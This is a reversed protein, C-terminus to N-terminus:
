ASVGEETANCEPCILNDLSDIHFHKGCVDCSDYYQKFCAPCISISNGNQDFASIVDDSHVYRGCHECSVYDGLGFDCIYVENGQSNVAVHLEENLFYDDCHHCFSYYQELCSSCVCIDDGIWHVNDEHFYQNCHNCMYYHNDLCNQCVYALEGDCNHVEFLEDTREDCDACIKLNHNCEKCYLGSDIEKGCKICLGFTGVTFSQFDHEHDARISIKPDFSSYNWDPYGGFGYGTLLSCFDNGSYNFTKWLNPVGELASIERQILDRYLKSDSQFGSTGGSTNYLRSQLLLGNYPKYMFLQRSTKRNNLLEPIDPDSVTFVIFTVNDRAYGSCGCNYRYDTSNFSHCSTLMNGRLDNKPNSMTLFHAPNISVFLKFNIKKSSLEDAFKAFLRQFESGASDNSVGLSDCIAKFIRSKKKRPAYAKPAIQNIADIYEPVSSGKPNSFFRIALCINQLTDYDFSHNSNLLIDRALSQILEFDPNHTRSGNIVLAQLDNNWVPSKSFLARLESKANFNDEALRTVFEDSVDNLVDTRSTHLRYDNVAQLINSKNLAIINNDM